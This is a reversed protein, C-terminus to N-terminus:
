PYEKYGKPKAFDNQNIKNSRQGLHLRLMSIWDDTWKQPKYTDM